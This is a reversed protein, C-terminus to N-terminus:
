VNFQYQNRTPLYRDRDYLPTEHAPIIDNSWDKAWQNRDEEDAYYRLYLESDEESGSGVLDIHCASNEDIPMDPNEVLLEEYWLAEYLERDSLHNTNYLFTRLLALGHIVEWLKATLQMDDLEEPAPLAVGGQVLLDFSTNIEAEEYTLVYERSAQPLEESEFFSLKDSM